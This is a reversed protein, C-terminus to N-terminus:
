GIPHAARAEQHAARIGFRNPKQVLAEAEIGLVDIEAGRDPRAAPENAECRRDLHDMDATAGGCGRWRGRSLGVPLTAEGEIFFVM